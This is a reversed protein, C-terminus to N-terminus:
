RPPYEKAAKVTGVPNIWLAAFDNVAVIVAPLVKDPVNLMIIGDVIEDM